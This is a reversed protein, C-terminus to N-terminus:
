EDIAKGRRESSASARRKKRPPRYPETVGFRAAMQPDETYHGRALRYIPKPPVRDVLCVDSNVREGQQAWLTVAEWFAKTGEIGNGTKKHIPMPGCFHHMEFYWLRGGAYIKKTPGGVNILAVTDGMQVKICM